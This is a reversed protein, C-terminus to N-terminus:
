LLRKIQLDVQVHNEINKVVDAMHRRIMDEAADEDHASIQVLIAEHFSIAKEVAEPLNSVELIFRNLMDRIVELFRELVRNRSAHALALHFDADLRSFEQLDSNEFAKRQAALMEKMQELEATDTRAAALRVTAREVYIRAELFERVTAPQLLLHETLSAMYPTSTTSCVVTGVGQMAKLLGMVTLKYIAERVTNRSVGLQKGLKDQSPLRDGEKLEGSLIREHLIHFIEDAASTRKVSRRNM